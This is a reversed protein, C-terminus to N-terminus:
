HLDGTAFRRGCTFKRCSVGKQLINRSLRECWTTGPVGADSDGASKNFICTGPTGPLRTQCHLCVRCESGGGSCILDCRNISCTGRFYQPSVSSSSFWWLCLSHYSFLLLCQLSPFRSGLGWATLPLPSSAISPHLVMGRGQPVSFFLAALAVLM